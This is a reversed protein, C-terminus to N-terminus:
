EKHWIDRERIHADLYAGVREAEDDTQDRDDEVWFYGPWLDVGPEDAIVVYLCYPCRRPNDHRFRGGCECPRLREEILRLRAREREAGAGSVNQSALTADIAAIMPDYYSVTVGNACRDCYLLYEDYFPSHDVRYLAQHCHPCPFVVGRLWSDDGDAGEGM